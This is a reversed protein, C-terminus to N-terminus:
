KLNLERLRINRFWTERNHNTLLIHGRIKEDFGRVNKFKSKAVGAKVEASGLEYDLVMVGNLWHEVHNGSIVLRSQNWDGPPRAPTKVRPALVEYFSATQHLADPIMADDIMQYEPGPTSPRAESVLYKIGNNGGPLIRWEWELEYNDFTDRTVLDGGKGGPLLHLSGDEVVWGSKPFETGCFTRWASTDHGDFLARWPAPRPSASCGTLLLAFALSPIIGSLRSAPNSKM